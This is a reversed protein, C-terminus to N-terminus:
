GVINPLPQQRNDEASKPNKSTKTKINKVSKKKSFILTFEGDKIMDPAKKEVKLSTDQETELKKLEVEDFAEMVTEFLESSVYHSDLLKQQTQKRYSKMEESINFNNDFAKNKSFLPFHESLRRMISKNQVNKPFKSPLAM